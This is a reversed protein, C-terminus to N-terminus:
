AVRQRERIAAVRADQRALCELPVRQNGITRPGDTAGHWDSGGSPVLHFFDALATLRAIDEASHSPHLIEVGDLGQHVLPELRARRGSEGPHALVAIGGCAHVLAIADAMTLRMKEVFAPRGWGLYRDFADRTDRAWGNAIMAKAVHPRGIAGDRAQELVDAFDLRVGLANLKAVIQEGRHRRADRFVVLRTEIQDLRELHLGLLHLEGSADYASLEVGPVLRMGFRAATERAEAVGAISDHDTLALAVLGARHAHEVVVGPALAGDSATSHSHLDVHPGANGDAPARGAPATV